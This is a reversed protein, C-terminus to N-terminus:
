RSPDAMSALAAELLAPLPTDARRALGDLQGAIALTALGHVTAWAMAQRGAEAPSLREPHDPRGAARSLAADAAAQAARLRPHAPDLMDRRYMLSFLAPERLAFALYGRGIALPTARAPEAGLMEAVLAEFGTAALESLLGTLDGFHPAAATHSVGARRTIARLKLGALGEEALIARAAQLLAAPLNGHRYPRPTPDM